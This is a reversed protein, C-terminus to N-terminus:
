RIPFGYHRRTDTEMLLSRVRSVHSDESLLAMRLVARYAADEGGEGGEGGASPGAVAGPLAQGDDRAAGAGGGSRSGLYRARASSERYADRGPTRGYGEGGGSAAVAAAAAGATADSGIYADGAASRINPTHYRFAHAQQTVQAGTGAGGGSGDGSALAGGAPLGDADLGAEFAWAFNNGRGAAGRTGNPFQQQRLGGGSEHGLRANSRGYGGRSQGGYPEDDDDIDGVDNNNNVYTM